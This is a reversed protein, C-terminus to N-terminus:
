SNADRSSERKERERKERKGEDARVWITIFLGVLIGAVFGIYLGSYFTMMIEKRAIAKGRRM